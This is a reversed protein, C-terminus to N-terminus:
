GRFVTILKTAQSCFVLIESVCPTVCGAIYKKWGPEDSFCSDAFPLLGNDGLVAHM